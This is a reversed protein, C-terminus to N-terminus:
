YPPNRARMIFYFIASFGFFALVWKWGLWGMVVMLVGCFLAILSSTALNTEQSKHRLLILCVFWITCLLIPGFWGDSAVNIYSGYSVFGTINNPMPTTITM